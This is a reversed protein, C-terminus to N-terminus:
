RRGRKLDEMRVAIEQVAKDGVHLQLVLVDSGGGMMRASKNAPIVTGSSSPVVIEPGREGVLYPEGAAVPGGSARAPKNRTDVNVDAMLRVATSVDAPVMSLAAIYQELAVRLPSGPALTDATKKLGDIMIQNKKDASLTVGERAAQQEALDAEAQAMDLASKAADNLSVDYENVSTTPDDIAKALDDLAQKYNNTADFVAFNADISARIADKKRREADVVADVSKVLDFNADAYAQTLQEAHSMSKGFVANFIAAEDASKAFKQHEAIAASMITNVEEQNQGQAIAAAGWERVKEASSQVMQSWQDVTLKANKLSKTINVVRKNDGDMTYGFKVGSRTYMEIGHGFKAFSDTASDIQVEIKGLSTYYNVLADQPSKANDQMAKTLGEIREKAVKSNEAAAGMLASVGAVALTLAALPGATAALGSLGINGDAAYEALQGIMVGASGAVGGLAGLDQVSNGVMNALVSRSQDGEHAVKKLGEGVNDGAVSGAADLDKLGQALFESDAKIDDFTLGMKRWDQVYSEVSRGSSEMAQVMEPGLSDAVVLSTERLNDLEAKLRSAAQSYAEGLKEGAGRADDANDSLEKFTRRVDGFAKSAAKVGADDFESAIKAVVAM